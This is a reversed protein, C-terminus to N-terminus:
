AAERQPEPIASTELTRLVRSQAWDIRDIPWPVIQPFRSPSRETSTSGDTRVTSYTELTASAQVGAPTYIIGTSRERAQITLDLDLAHALNAITNLTWNPDGNFWRSVEHKTSGIAKALSQLTFGGPRKKREMIVSWFLSVLASRLMGREYSIVFRPDTKRNKMSM